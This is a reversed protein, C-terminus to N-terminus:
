IKFSILLIDQKPKNTIEVSYKQTKYPRQLQFYEFVRVASITLSHNTPHHGVPRCDSTKKKRFELIIRKTKKDYGMRVYPYSKLNLQRVAATNVGLTGTPYISVKPETVSPQLFYNANLYEVTM